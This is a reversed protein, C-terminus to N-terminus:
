KACCAAAEAAGRSSRLSEIARGAAELGEPNLAYHTWRGERRDLVLGADKLVKMHFSLRSQGTALLHVLDCVCREGNRLRGLIAMRTEDSLAHFIRASRSTM